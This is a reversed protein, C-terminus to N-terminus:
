PMEIPTLDVQSPYQVQMRASSTTTKWQGRLGNPGLFSHRSLTEERARPINLALKNFQQEIQNSNFHQDRIPENAKWSNQWKNNPVSSGHGKGNEYAPFGQSMRPPWELSTDGTEEQSISRAYRANLENVQRSVEPKLQELESLVGNLKKVYEVKERTHSQKFDRHQPITESILSSFRLLIIYLDILNKEERHINA